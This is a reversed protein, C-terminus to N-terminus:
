NQYKIDLRLVRSRSLFDNLISVNYKKSLNLSLFYEKAIFINRPDLEFILIDFDIEFETFKEEIQSLLSKFLDLGDEGSFLALEPEFSLNPLNESLNQQDKKPLDKTPLYPLNAVLINITSKLTNKKLFNSFTASEFSDLLDSLIFQPEVTTSFLESFKFYNKQAIKLAKQSFDSLILTDIFLGLELWLSLGIVGSGTGIDMVNIGVQNHYKLSIKSKLETILTKVWEETEPRPILVDQSLGFNRGMFEIEGLIYALPFGSELKTKIKNLLKSEELTIKQKTIEIAIQQFSSNRLKALIFLDTIDMVQNTQNKPNQPIKPDDM